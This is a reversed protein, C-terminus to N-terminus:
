GLHINVASNGGFVWRIDRLLFDALVIEHQGFALIASQVLGIDYMRLRDARPLGEGLAGLASGVEKGVEHLGQWEIVAGEAEGELEAAASM